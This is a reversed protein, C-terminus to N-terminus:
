EFATTANRNLDRVFVVVVVIAVVVVAIATTPTTATTMHRSCHKEDRLYANRHQQRHWPIHAVVVVVITILLLLIIHM